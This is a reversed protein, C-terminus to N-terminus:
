YAPPPTYARVERSRVLPEYDREITARSTLHRRLHALAPLDRGPLDRSTDVLVSVLDDVGAAASRRGAIDAAERLLTELDESRRPTGKGNPLGIPIESAVISGMERRLAAVRIGRVELTEAAADIRTLAYILHEVRVEGARHTVALDYALNCCALVTDDVWITEGRLGYGRPRGAGIDGNGLDAPPRAGMQPTRLDLDEGRYGM